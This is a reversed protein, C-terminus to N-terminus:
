GRDVGTSEGGGRESSQPKLLPYVMYVSTHHYSITEQITLLISISALNNFYDCNNSEQVASTNMVCPDLRGLIVGTTYACSGNGTLLLMPPTNLSSIIITFTSLLQGAVVIACHSPSSGVVEM